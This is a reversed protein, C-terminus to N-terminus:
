KEKDEWKVTDKAATEMKESMFAFAVTFIGAIIIAVSTYETLTRWEKFLGILLLVVATILCAIVMSGLILRIIKMTKMKM